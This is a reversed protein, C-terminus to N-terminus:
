RRDYATLQDAYVKGFLSWPEHEAGLRPDRIIHPKGGTM